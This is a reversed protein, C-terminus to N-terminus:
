SGCHRWLTDLLETYSTAHALEGIFAENQLLPSLNSFLNRFDHRDEQSLAFYLVVHVLQDGWPVGQESVVVYIVSRLAPWADAHPMALRQGFVTPSIRERRDVNRLFAEDVYGWELLKRGIHDLVERENAFVGDAEFADPSLYRAFREVFELRQRKAEIKDLTVRVADIDGARMLPSVVVLDPVGDLDVTSVVLEGKPARVGKSLDSVVSKVNVRLGLEREIANRLSDRVRSYHPCVITCPTRDEPDEKLLYAGLHLTVYAVDEETLDFAYEEAAKALVYIALDYIFPYESSIERLVQPMRRERPARIVVRQLHMSIGEVLGEDLLNLDYAQSLDALAQWVTAYLEPFAEPSSVPESAGARVTHGFMIVAMACAEPESPDLGFRGELWRTAIRAIELERTGEQPVAGNPAAAIVHGRQRRFTAIFLYLLLINLSYGFVEAGHDRIASVLVDRLEDLPWDGVVLQVYEYRPSRAGNSRLMAHVALRRIDREDGDITLNRGRVHLRLGYDRLMKRLAQLDKDVTSDSVCMLGPLEDISASGEYIIRRAIFLVRNEPTLDSMVRDFVAEEGGIAHNWLYGRSSSLVRTGKASEENLARVYNRVSRQTVGLTEALDDATLWQNASLLVQRTKAVMESKGVLGDGGPGEGHPERARTGM